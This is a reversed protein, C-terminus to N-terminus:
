DKRHLADIRGLGDLAGYPVSIHPPKINPERPNIRIVTAHKLDRGIRESIVRITSITKGAGMEIVVVRRGSNNKTFRNFAHNQALTRAHLWSSDGFMLINPRCVKGCATCCPLPDRARMTSEDILFVENNYWIEDTCRNQCQLWHISGHVEYIRDEAYGAKQFLGDVNSTVVFYDANNREIWKRIIHFGDHPITDRYLNTRHGYFGWGFAPNNAFHQPNACEAFPLGFRAYAPYAKWFGHDGRFDPLGSDVGMGAGATIVFVEAERIIAAAHELM